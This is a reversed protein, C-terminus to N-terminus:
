TLTACSTICRSQRGLVLRRVSSCALADYGDNAGDSVIDAGNDETTSTM